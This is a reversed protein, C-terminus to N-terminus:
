TKFLKNEAFRHNKNCFNMCLDVPFCFSHRATCVLRSYCLSVNTLSKFSTINFFAHKTFLKFTRYRNMIRWVLNELKHRSNKLIGIKRIVKQVKIFCKNQVNIVACFFFIRVKGNKQVTFISRVQLYSGNRSSKQLLIIFWKTVRVM